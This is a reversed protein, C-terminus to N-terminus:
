NSNYMAKALIEGSTIDSQICQWVCDSSWTRHCIIEQIPISANFVLIAGSHCLTYFSYFKPLGLMVNLSKLCKRVGPIQSQFGIQPLKFSFYLFPRQFHMSPPCLGLLRIPAFLLAWSLYHLLKHKEGMKSLDIIM